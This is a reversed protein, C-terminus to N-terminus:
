EYTRSEVPPAPRLRVSRCPNAIRHMVAKSGCMCLSILSKCFGWRRLHLSTRRPQLVPFPCTVLEQLATLCVADTVKGRVMGISTCDTIPTSCEGLGSDPDLAAFNTRAIEMLSVEKVGVTGGGGSHPDPVGEQM